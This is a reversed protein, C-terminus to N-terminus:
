QDEAPFFDYGDALHILLICPVESVCNDSHIDKGPQLAYSGKPLIFETGDNLIHEWTGQITVGQYTNSHGHAIGKFGPAVKMLFGTDNTKEDKWLSAVSIGPTLEQWEMEDYVISKAKHNNVSKAKHNGGAFLPVSVMLLMVFMLYNKM